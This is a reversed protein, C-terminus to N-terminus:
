GGGDVSELRYGLRSMAEGTQSEIRRLQDRSLHQRWGGLSGKRVFRLDGGGTITRLRPNDDEKRRMEAIGNNAIANRVRDLPVALGMFSLVQALAKEPHLRVDEYKLVRLDRHHVDGATTWSNVHSAWSGFQNSNGELFHGIFEDLEGRWTNALRAYFFESVVVDRADRVLYIAKKYDRSYPEHTRVIRGGGPLLPLSSLQKGVFRIDRDVSHFEAQRGSLIEFMLFCFWTSGSRPYSAILTDHESLTKNRLWVLPARLQTKALSNRVRIITTTLSNM